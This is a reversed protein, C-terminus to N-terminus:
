LNPNQNPRNKIPNQRQNNPLSKLRQRRNKAPRGEVPNSFQGRLERFRALQQPTLIRRIARENMVRNKILEFQAAHVEKLRTQIEVENESDGYIAQDLARNAERLREQTEQMVPRRDQNLRRIQQIQQPSLDLERLLNPRQENGDGMPPDGPAQSKASSVLFISFLITFILHYFNFKKM